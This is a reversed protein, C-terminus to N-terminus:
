VDMYYNDVNIIFGNLIVTYQKLQFSFFIFAM